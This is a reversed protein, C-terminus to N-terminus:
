DTGALFRPLDGLGCLADRPRRPPASPRRPCVRVDLVLSNLFSSPVPRVLPRSCPPASAAPVRESARLLRERRPCWFWKRFNGPRAQGSGGRRFCGKQKGDGGGREGSTTRTALAEGSAPAWM